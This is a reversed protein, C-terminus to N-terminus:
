LLPAYEKFAEQAEADAHRHRPRPALWSYGMRHMLEYVGTLSYKVGFEHQLIRQIDRGRFECVEDADTPGAELRGRLEDWRERPLLPKKGPPKKVEIAELGGDRYAYAWRQVFARSRDLMEVIEKTQRGDLALAIARYRDRQIADLEARILQKLHDLDEKSRAEVEM